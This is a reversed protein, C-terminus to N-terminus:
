IESGDPPPAPETACAAAPEALDAKDKAGRVARAAKAASKQLKRCAQQADEGEVVDRKLVENALTKRVEDASIGVDPSLKRLERRVTAVVADSLLIAGIAFRDTAQRRAYHEDLASKQMGEKTLLYLAEIDAAVRSNLDLLNIQCVLEQDIPKGFIVRYVQWQMANTLIVWDVGENVAYDVAQKTHTPKFEIGVAKVEIIARLTGELRVVIDCYTGRIAKESTIDTYKDFGFLEALLDTVIIVTDSENVDRARASSTIPQFRKLGAALRQAVKTPVSAM